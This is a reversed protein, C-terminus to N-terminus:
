NLNVQKFLKTELFERQARLQKEIQILMEAWNIISKKKM